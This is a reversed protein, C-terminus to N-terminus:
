HDVDENSNDSRKYIKKHLNGHLRKKEKYIKSISNTRPEFTKDPHSSHTANKTRWKKVDTYLRKLIANIHQM